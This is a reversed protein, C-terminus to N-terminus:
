LLFNKKVIGVDYTLTKDNPEKKVCNCIEDVVHKITHKYLLMDMYAYREQIKEKLNDIVTQKAKDTQNKM